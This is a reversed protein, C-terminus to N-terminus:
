AWCRSSFCRCSSAACVALLVQAAAYTVRRGEDKVYLDFIMLACAGILLVVEAAAPVHNVLVIGVPNM